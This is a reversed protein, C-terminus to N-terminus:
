KYLLKYLLQYSILDFRIKKQSLHVGNGVINHVVLTNGLNDLKFNVAALQRSGLNLCCSLKLLQLLLAEQLLLFLDHLCMIQKTM